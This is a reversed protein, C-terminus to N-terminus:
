GKSLLRKKYKTVILSCTLLTVREKELSKIPKDPNQFESNMVKTFRRPYQTNLGLWGAIWEDM